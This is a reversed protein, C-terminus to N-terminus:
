RAAKACEIALWAFEIEAVTGYRIAYAHLALAMELRREPSM